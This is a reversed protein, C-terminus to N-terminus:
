EVCCFCKKRPVEVLDNAELLVNMMTPDVMDYSRTEGDRTIKVRRLSGFETSGGAREIASSLTMPRTMLLRGPKRVDGGIQISEKRRLKAVLSQDIGSSGTTAPPRTEAQDAWQVGNASAPRPNSSPPPPNKFRDETMSSELIAAALAALAFGIWSTLAARDM